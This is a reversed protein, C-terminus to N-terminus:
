QINELWKQRIQMDSIALAGSAGRGAIRHYVNMVDAWSDNSM